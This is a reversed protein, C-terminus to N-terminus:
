GHCSEQWVVWDQFNKSFKQTLYRRYHPFAKELPPILPLKNVQDFPVWAFDDHETGDLLPTFAEPIRFVFVTFTHHGDIEEFRAIRQGAFYGIEELSERRATDIAFENGESAGGPLCWKGKHDASHDGRRLFLVKEGDTYLIGAGSKGWYATGGKGIREYVKDRRDENSHFPNSNQM